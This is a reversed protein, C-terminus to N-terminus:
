SGNLKLKNLLNAFELHEKKYPPWEKEDDHQKKLFDMKSIYNKTKDFPYTNEIDHVIHIRKQLKTFLNVEMNELAWSSSLLTNLNKKILLFKDYIRFYVEEENRQIDKTKKYEELFNDISNNYTSVITKKVKKKKIWASIERSFLGLIFSALFGFFSLVKDFWKSASWKTGIKIQYHRKQGYYNIPMKQIVGDSYVVLLYEKFQADTKFLFKGNQDSIMVKPNIKPDNADYLMVVANFVAKGDSDIVNGEIVESLAPTATLSIFSFFGVILLTKIFLKTIM